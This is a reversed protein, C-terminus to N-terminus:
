RVEVTEVGIEDAARLLGRDLSLVPCRHSRGCELVYADYAYIKLRGAIELANALDVDVFQIPIKAYAELAKRVKGIRVRGRKLMASFANGMEWHVSSPALLSGGRTAEVLTAKTSENAIVSILASTDVVIRM